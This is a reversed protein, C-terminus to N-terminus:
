EVGRLVELARARDLPLLPFELWHWVPLIEAEGEDASIRVQRIRCSLPVIRFGDVLVHLQALRELLALLVEAGLCDKGVCTIREHLNRGLGLGDLTIQTAMATLVLGIQPRTAQAVHLTVWTTRTVFQAFM